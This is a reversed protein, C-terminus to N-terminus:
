WRRTTRRRPLGSDRTHSVVVGASDAVVCAPANCWDVFICPAVLSASRACFSHKNQCRTTVAICHHSVLQSAESPRALQLKRVVDVRKADVALEACRYHAGEDAVDVASWFLTLSCKESQPHQARPWTEVKAISAAVVHYSERASFQSVLAAATAAVAPQPQPWRVCLTVLGPSLVSVNANAHVVVVAGSRLSPSVHVSAVKHPLAFKTTTGDAMGADSRKWTCLQLGDDLVAYLQKNACPHQVAAAVCCAGRAIPWSEV